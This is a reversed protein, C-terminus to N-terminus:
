PLRPVEAAAPCLPIDNPIKKGLDSPGSVASGGGTTDVRFNIGAKESPANKFKDISLLIEQEVTGSSNRLYPEAGVAHAASPVHYDAASAEAAEFWSDQACAAGSLCVSALSIM